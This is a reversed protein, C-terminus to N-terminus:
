LNDTKKKQALFDKFSKLVQQKKKKVGKLYKVMKRAETGASRYAGTRNENAFNQEDEINEDVNEIDEELGDLILQHIQEDGITSLIDNIKDQLIAKDALMKQKQSLKM